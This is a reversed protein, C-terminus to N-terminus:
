VPLGWRTDHRPTSPSCMARWLRTPRRERESLGDLVVLAEEVEAVAQRLAAAHLRGTSEYLAEAADARARLAGRGVLPITMSLPGVSWTNFNSTESATSFRNRLWSGSFSLNPSCPPRQLGWGRLRLWGIPRHM